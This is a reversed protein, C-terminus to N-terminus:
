AFYPPHIVFWDSDEVRRSARTGALGCKDDAEDAM